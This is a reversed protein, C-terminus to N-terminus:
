IEKKKLTQDHINRSNELCYYMQLQDIESDTLREKGGLGKGDSIVSGKVTNKM